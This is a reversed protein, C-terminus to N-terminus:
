LANFSQPIFTRTPVTVEVGQTATAFSVAASLINWSVGDPDAVSHTALGFTTGHISRQGSGTSCCSLVNSLM